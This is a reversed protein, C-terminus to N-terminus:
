HITVLIKEQLKILNEWKRFLQKIPFQIPVLFTRTGLKKGGHSALLKNLQRNFVTIKSRNKTQYKYIVIQHPIFKQRQLSSYLLFSETPFEDFDDIAVVQVPIEFTWELKSAIKAIKQTNPANASIMLDVDSDSDYDGRAFSGILYVEGEVKASFLHAVLYGLLISRQDNLDSKLLKEVSSNMKIGRNITPM